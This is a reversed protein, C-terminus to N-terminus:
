ISNYLMELFELLKYFTFIESMLKTIDSGEKIPLQSKQETVKSEVVESEEEIRLQSKQKKAVIKFRKRKDSKLSSM